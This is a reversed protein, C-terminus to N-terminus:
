PYVTLLHLFPFCPDAIERLLGRVGLVHHRCKRCQGLQPVLDVLEHLSVGLTREFGTARKGVHRAREVDRALRRVPAVSVEHGLARSLRRAPEAGCRVHSLGHAVSALAGDGGALRQAALVHEEADEARVAVSGTRELGLADRVVRRESACAREICPLGVARISTSAQAPHQSLGSQNRDGAALFAEARILKEERRQAMRVSACAACQGRKAHRHGRDALPQAASRTVNTSVLM